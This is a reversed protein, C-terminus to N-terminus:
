STSTKTFPNTYSHCRATESCHHHPLPITTSSTILYIFVPQARFSSSASTESSASTASGATTPLRSTALLQLALCTPSLFTPPPLRGNCLFSATLDFTYLKLALDVFAAKFLCYWAKCGQLRHGIAMGLTLGKALTLSVGASHLLFVLCITM